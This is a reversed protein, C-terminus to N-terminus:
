LKKRRNLKFREKIKQFAAYYADAEFLRADKRAQRLFFIGAPILAINAFWSGFLPDAMGEKAWKEGTLNLM